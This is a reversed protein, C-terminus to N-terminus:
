IIIMNMFYYKQYHYIFYNFNKFIRLTIKIEKKRKIDEKIM